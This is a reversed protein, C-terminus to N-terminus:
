LQKDYMKEILPGFYAVVKNYVDKKFAIIEKTAVSINDWKFAKFEVCNPDIDFKIEEDDGFFEFLVWHQDQGNFNYISNYNKPFDYKISFPMKHLFKINKIGTEEYLERKGAEVIDEGDEIGGQPFQWQFGECNARACLLVKGKKLVIVGVNKRYKKTM